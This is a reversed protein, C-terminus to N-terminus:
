PGANCTWPGTQCPARGAPRRPAAKPRSARGAPRALVCAAQGTSVSFEELEPMTPRLGPSSKPCAALRQGVPIPQPVRSIITTLTVAGDAPSFRAYFFAYPETNSGMTTRTATLV